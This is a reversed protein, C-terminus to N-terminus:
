RNIARKDNEENARAEDAHLNGAAGAEDPGAPGHDHEVPLTIVFTSGSGPESSATILGCHREVIKRCVALGVGSGEYASKTDARHFLAFLKERDEAPFGIGNDQIVIECRDVASNVASGNRGGAPILRGTVQIRPEEGARHYKLGNDIINQMCQRMQVPDAEIVPLDGVEITGGTESLHVELDSAVEEIVAKLNLPVFQRGHTSVRSIQLINTILGQMRETSAAILDLYERADADLQEGSRRQLSGALVQVKRLPERLDHSAVLAFERLDQNSRELRNNLDTLSHNSAQLLGLLDDRELEFRIREAVEERLQENADHLEATRRRVMDEAARRQRLNVLLHYAVMMTLLLSASLGALPVRSVTARLYAESPVCFLLWRRTKGLSVPGTQNLGPIRMIEAETIPPLAPDRSAGPRFYLLKAGPTGFADHIYLDIEQQRLTSLAAEALVDVRLHGLAYGILHQRREAETDLAVEARYVPKIVLVSEPREEYPVRPAFFMKGSDRALDLYRRTEPDAGFDFGLVEEEEAGGTRFVVPVHEERPPSPTWQGSGDRDRIEFPGGSRATVRAEFAARQDGLVRPAWLLAVGPYDEDDFDQLSAGYERRSADPFSAFTVSSWRVAEISSQLQRDFARFYIRADEAFDYRAVEQSQTKLVTYLGWSTVLGSALIAVLPLYSRWAQVNGKGM